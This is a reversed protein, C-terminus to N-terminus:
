EKDRWYDHNALRNRSVDAPTRNESSPGAADRLQAVLADVNIASLIGDTLREILGPERPEGPPRQEESRKEQRSRERRRRVTEGASKSARRAADATATAATRDAGTASLVVGLGIAIGLAPWPHRQVLEGIRIRERVGAIADGASALTERASETRASLADGLQEATESMRARTADMEYRLDDPNGNGREAM